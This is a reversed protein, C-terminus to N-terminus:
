LEEGTVDPETGVVAADANATKQLARVRESSSKALWLLALSCKYNVCVRM